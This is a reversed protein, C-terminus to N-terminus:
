PLVGVIQNFETILRAHRLTIVELDRASRRSQQLAIVVQSIDTEGTVFATKAMEWQQRALQAQEKSLPMSENLTFLEHAIEHLQLNLERFTNLYRVDADVKNRRASSTSANVHARGGFPITVSLALADQYDDQNGARQRRSGISLTPNGLADLETKDIEAAALDIDSRLLQLLPHEPSIEDTTQLTEIHPKEPRINLGTLMQYNREADVRAAEAALENRQQALLLTQAQLVDRRATEGAVHLSEAISLLQRADATAQQETALLTDADQMDALVQRLRGAMNLTFAEQWAAVQANYQQGRAQMTNREGSRWLPLTIGYTLEREGRDSLMQDDIYDVQASPRGAIWSEGLEVMAQAEEIRAKTELAEPAHALTQELLTTFNLNETTSLPAHDLEQAHLHPTTMLAVLITLATLHQKHTKKV